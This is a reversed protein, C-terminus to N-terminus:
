TGIRPMEEVERCAEIADDDRERRKLCFVEKKIKKYIGGVWSKPSPVQSKPRSDDIGMM